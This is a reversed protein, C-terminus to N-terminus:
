SQIFTYLDAIGESSLPLHEVKRKENTGEGAVVPKYAKRVFGRDKNTRSSLEFQKPATATLTHAVSGRAAEIYLEIADKDTSMPNLAFLLVKGYIKALLDYATLLEFIGMNVGGKGTAGGSSYFVTRLSDIFIVPTPGALAIALQQVLQSEYLLSDPEPERYRLTLVRDSNRAALTNSLLTKGANAQGLVVGAGSSLKLTEGGLDLEVMDTTNQLVAPIPFVLAETNYPKAGGEGLIEFKDNLEFLRQLGLRWIASM